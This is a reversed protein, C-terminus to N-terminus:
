YPNGSLGCYGHRIPKPRRWPIHHFDIIGEDIQEWGDGAPPVIEIGLGGEHWVAETTKYEYSQAAWRWAMCESAICKDLYGEANLVSRNCGAENGARVFPCWKKRAEDETLTM